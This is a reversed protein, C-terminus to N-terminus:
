LLRHSYGFQVYCSEGTWGIARTLLILRLRKSCGALAIVINSTVKKTTSVTFILVCCVQNHSPSILPSSVLPLEKWYGLKPRKTALLLSLNEPRSFGQIHGRSFNLNTSLENQSLGNFLPQNWSPERIKSKISIPLFLSLASIVRWFVAVMDMFSLGYPSFGVIKM